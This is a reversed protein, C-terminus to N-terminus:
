EGKLLEQIDNIRNRLNKVAVAEQVYAFNDNWHNISHKELIELDGEALRTKYAINQIKEKIKDKSIYDKEFEEITSVVQETTVEKAYETLKKQTRNKTKLEANEKQLHEIEENKEDLLNQMAHLEAIATDIAECEKSVLDQYEPLSKLIEIADSLKPIEKHESKLWNIECDKCEISYDCHPNCPIALDIDMGNSIFDALEEDSMDQMKELLWQRNTM